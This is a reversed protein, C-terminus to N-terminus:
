VLRVGAGEVVRGAIWAREGSEGLLAVARAADKAAVVVLLGCGMNLFEAAEATSLGAKKALHAFLPPTKWSGLVVESVKTGSRGLRRHNM